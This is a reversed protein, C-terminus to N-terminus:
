KESDLIQHLTAAVDVISKELQEFNINPPIQGEHIIFSSASYVDKITPAIDEPLLNEDILLSVLKYVPYRAEEKFHQRYIERLMSEVLVRQELVKRIEASKQFYDDFKIEKKSVNNNGIIMNFNQKERPRPNNSHKKENKQKNAVLIIIKDVIPKFFLFVIIPIFFIIALIIMNNQIFKINDMFSLLFLLLSFNILLSVRRYIYTVSENEPRQIGSATVFEYTYNNLIEELQKLLELRLNDTIHENEYVRAYIMKVLDEKDIRLKCNKVKEFGDIVAELNIKIIHVGSNVHNRIVLNIIEEKLRIAEKRQERGQKLETYLFFFVALILSLITATNVVQDSNLM